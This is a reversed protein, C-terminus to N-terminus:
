GRGLNVNPRRFGATETSRDSSAALGGRPSPFWTPADDKAAEKLDLL